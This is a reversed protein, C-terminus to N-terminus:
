CGSDPQVLVAREAAALCAGASEAFYSRRPRTCGLRVAAASEAVAGPLASSSKLTWPAKRLVCAGYAMPRTNSRRNLSGFASVTM